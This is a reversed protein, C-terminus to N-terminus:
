RSLFFGARSPEWLYCFMHHLFYYNCFVLFQAPELEGPGDNRKFVAPHQQQKKLRRTHVCLEEWQCGRRVSQVDPLSKALANGWAFAGYSIESLNQLIESAGTVQFGLRRGELEAFSPADGFSALLLPLLLSGHSVFAAVLKLLRKIKAAASLSVRLM